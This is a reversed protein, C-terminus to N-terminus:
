RFVEEMEQQMKDVKLQHETGEKELQALPHLQDPVAGGGLSSTLKRCRYTEYHTGNTVDKLDQLHTTHRM